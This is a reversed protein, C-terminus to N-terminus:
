VLAAKIKELICGKQYDTIYWASYAIAFVDLISALGHMSCAGKNQGIDICLEPFSLILGAFLLLVVDAVTMVGKGFKLMGSDTEQLIKRNLPSAYKLKFLLIVNNKQKPELSAICEQLKQLSTLSQDGKYIFWDALLLLLPMLVVVWEAIQNSNKQSFQACLLGLSVLGGIKVFERLVGCGFRKAISPKEANLAEQILREFEQVDPSTSSQSVLMPQVQVVQNADIQLGNKTTDVMAGVFYFMAIFLLGCILCKKFNM